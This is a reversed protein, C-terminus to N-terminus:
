PSAVVTDLAGQKGRLLLARRMTREYDHVAERMLSWAEEARGDCIARLLERRPGPTDNLAETRDLALCWFRLALRYCQLLMAELMQNHASRFITRHIREDLNVLEREDGEWLALDALLSALQGREETSARQAALRAAEPEMASRVECLSTLQRADVGAVFAGRRPYVEVLQERALLHLAERVPARGMGLSHALDRQDIATGPALELGVILDRIAHYAAETHRAM